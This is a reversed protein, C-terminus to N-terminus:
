SENAIRKVLRSRVDDPLSGSSLDQCIQQTLDLSAFVSRCRECIVSSDFPVGRDLAAQKADLLDLCTQEDYAPPPAPTSSRPIVEDIAARLKLRARHVRSRVTGEELDLIQAVERLSCGVIEKLILPVRFEDPLQAIAQVLQERAESRIQEQVVDDQDAPVVAVRPQGFPLMSELSGIHEPEGARKRHMRQCARAAIRYLWTKVDADGRFQGWSRFANLFVEQVLDEAEDRSGCFRYGLQYLQGGYEDVLHQIAAQAAGQEQHENDTISDRASM